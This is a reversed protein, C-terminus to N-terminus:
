LVVSESRLTLEFLPVPDFLFIGRRGTSGSTSLVTYRNLFLRDNQNSPLFADAEERRVAPDTVLEDFHEMMLAKTLVPLGTLPRGDLGRHFRQYFRSHELAFRRLTTLRQQQRRELEARSWACAQGLARRRWLVRIPTLFAM